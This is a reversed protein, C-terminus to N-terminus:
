VYERVLSLDMRRGLSGFDVGLEASGLGIVLDANPTRIGLQRGIHSLPVLGNPIDEETYRCHISGPADIKRYADNNRICEYLSGGAVGYVRRLWGATSEIEYGLARSVALREADITEIFSAVSPTIGDYYYKFAVGPAEIWGTNMLVPACHLVMGVNGLSTIAVSEVPEFYGKLCDPMKSMILPLDDKMLSAIRVGNKIAFIRAGNGGTRRCTYVITQTEAIHPLERVGCSKLTEAFEIAGFTRGPNLVVVTDRGVFPAMRVAIDRHASSPTAIMVFPRMAAEMSSSVSDLRATGEVVGSCEVEGKEMVESIHSETRNWLSVRCGALALHASMAIGQHGGGCVFVDKASSPCNALASM